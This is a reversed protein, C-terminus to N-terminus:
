STAERLMEAHKRVWRLVQTGRMTPTFAGSGADSLPIRLQMTHVSACEAESWKLDYLLEGDAYQVFHATGKAIETLTPLKM